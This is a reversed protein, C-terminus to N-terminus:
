PYLNSHPGGLGKGISVVPYGARMAKSVRPTEGGSRESENRPIAARIAERGHFTGLHHEVWIGDTTHLDAWANWDGSDETKIFHQYAEEVESRTYPM